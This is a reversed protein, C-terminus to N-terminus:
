ADTDPKLCGVDANAGMGEKPLKWLSAFGRFLEGALVGGSRQDRSSRVYSNIIEGNDNHRQSPNHLNMAIRVVGKSGLHVIRVTDDDLVAEVVGVHTLPDDRRGNRNRDYTNDWFVIDGLHPRKKKHVLGESQALEFLDKSSGNFDWGARAYAAEVMGSCDYRHTEGGGTMHRAGVLQGAAKAVEAGDGSRHQRATRERPAKEEADPAPPDVRQAYPADPASGIHRVPGPFRLAGKACGALISTSLLAGLVVVRGGWRVRRPPTPPKSAPFPHQPASM